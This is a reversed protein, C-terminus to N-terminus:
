SLEELSDDNKNNTYEYKLIELEENLRDIIANERNSTKIEEVITMYDSSLYAHIEDKIVKDCYGISILQKKMKDYLKKPLKDVIANAAKRYKPHLYYFAHSIEHNITTESLPDSGILYYKPRDNGIIDCIKIHIDKITYDYDNWDPIYDFFKNIINSPINFGAWDLPYTFCGEGRRMSYIRQFDLMTFSKGKIEKYPSEYFEQLRCFTMTLDYSNEIGVLFVKPHIEKLNYNVKMTKDM